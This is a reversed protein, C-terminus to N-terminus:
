NDEVADQDFTFDVPEREGVYEQFSVYEYGCARSEARYELWAQYAYERDMAKEKKTRALRSVPVM